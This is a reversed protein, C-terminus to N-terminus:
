AVLLRRLWRGSSCITGLALKPEDSADLKPEDPPPAKAHARDFAEAPDPELSDAILELLRVRQMDPIQLLAGQLAPQAYEALTQLVKADGVLCMERFAMAVVALFQLESFCSERCAPQPLACWSTCQLLFETSVTLSLLM